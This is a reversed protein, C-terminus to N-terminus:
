MNNFRVKLGPEKILVYASDVEDFKQDNKVSVINSNIHNLRTKDMISVKYSDAHDLIPEEKISIFTHDVHEVKHEEEISIRNSDAYDFLPEEKIWVTDSDADYVKRRRKVTLKNHDALLKGSYKNVSALIERKSQFSIEYHLAQTRSGKAASNKQCKGAVSFYM